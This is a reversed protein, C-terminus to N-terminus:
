RRYISTTHLSVMVCLFDVNAEGGVDARERAQRLDDPVVAQQILQRVGRAVEGRRLRLLEPKDRADDLAAAVLDQRRCQLSCLQNRLLRRNGHEPRFM